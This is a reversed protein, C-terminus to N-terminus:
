LPDVSEIWCERVYKSVKAPRQHNETPESMRTVYNCLWLWSIAQYPTLLELVISRSAAHSMQRYLDKDTLLDQLFSAVENYNGSEVLYGTKGHIIQRVLGGTRYAIVPIGKSLAETVKIEFGTLILVYQKGEKTSLQLCITSSRLLANLLQDSPPIRVAIIDRDYSQCDENELLSLTEEFVYHGEPDDISGFGCILLQPVQIYPFIPDTLQRLRYYALIVDNIGLM